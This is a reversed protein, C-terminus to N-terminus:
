FDLVVKIAGDAKTDALEFGRQAEDIPMHHTVIHAPNINGSAIVDIAERVDEDTSMISGVVNIDKKVIKYPDILVPKKFLAIVVIRGQKRVTELAADFLNGSGHTIFVVDAGRGGTIANVSAVIDEKGVLIGHTAGLKPATDLCHQQVDAVIIPDAGRAHAMAVTVQGISGAGLILVSEGKQLHARKVAHVGVALPEITVGQDDTLNEPIVYVAEQLCLIYEGLAGPWQPTGLVLKNQCLNHDGARCWECEGCVWQPDVTVRDGVAVRDVGESIETVYGLMEHGLISPPKRYPHTGKFAHIESGCIGVHKVEIIVQGPGTFTPKEAQIVTLKEVAELCVAKV